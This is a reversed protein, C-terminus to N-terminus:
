PLLLPSLSLPGSVKLKHKAHSQRHSSSDPTISPTTISSSDTLSSLSHVTVQEDKDVKEASQVIYM